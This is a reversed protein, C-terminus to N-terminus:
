PKVYQVNWKACLASIQEHVRANDHTYLGALFGHLLEGGSMGRAPEAPGPLNIRVTEKIQKRYEIPQAM